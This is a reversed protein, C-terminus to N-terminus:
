NADNTRGTTSGLYAGPDGPRDRAVPSGDVLIGHIHRALGLLAADDGRQAILHLGIANAGTGFPLSVAPVGAANALSTEAVLATVVSIDEGGLPVRREGVAPIGV